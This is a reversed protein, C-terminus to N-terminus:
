CVTISILHGPNMRRMLFGGSKSRDRHGQSVILERGVRIQYNTEIVDMSGDTQLQADISVGTIRYSKAASLDPIWVLLFFVCICVFLVRKISSRKM